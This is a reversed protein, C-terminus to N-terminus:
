FMWSQLNRDFELSDKRDRVWKVVNVNWSLSLFFRPSVTFIRKNSIARNKQYIHVIQTVILNGNINQMM